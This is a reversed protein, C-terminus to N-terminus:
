SFLDLIFDLIGRGTDTANVVDVATTTADAIDSTDFFSDWTSSNTIDFGATTSLESVESQSFDDKHDDWLQKLNDVRHKMVTPSISARDLDAILDTCTGPFRHEIFKAIAKAPIILNAIDM